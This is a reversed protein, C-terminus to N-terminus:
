IEVFRAIVVCFDLLWTLCPKFRTDGEKVFMVNERQLEKKNLLIM